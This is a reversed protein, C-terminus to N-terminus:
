KKRVEKYFDENIQDYLDKSKSESDFIPASSEKKAAKDQIPEPKKTRRIEFQMFGTVNSKIQKNKRERVDTKGFAKASEHEFSATVKDKVLDLREAAITKAEALSNNPAADRFFQSEIHVESDVLGTTVKKVNDMITLFDANPEATGPHFLKSDPISFRIEERNIEVNKADEGMSEMLYSLAVKDYGFEFVNPTKDMPELLKSVTDLPENLLDNFLKELTLEVGFNRFQYEIVSPTSFYDSISKRTEESQSLLWMCLFFAMMATMFDAFAVKWAGGHHGGGNVTIKKIVIMSKEKAM